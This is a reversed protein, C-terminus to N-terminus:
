NFMEVKEKVVKVLDEKLNMLKEKSENIKDQVDEVIDQVDSVIKDGKRRINRRTRSGSNPAILIGCVTGIAAGAAFAILVRTTNNM